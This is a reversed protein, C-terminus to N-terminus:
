LGVDDDDPTVVDALGVDASVRAAQHAVLRGIDVADGAFPHHEGVDIGLLAARRAAGREDGALRAQAGAEGLDAQGARRQAQALLIGRDGLQQLRLAIRGALEALVMQAVAVFEQRRHVAEVLEVAVEIVEIGLFLGLQRIVRLVRREARLEARAAHEVALGGVLVIGRDLRAEAADALLGTDVGARQGLLAHLRDVVVDGRAGDIEDLALVLGALGGQDPHVEGVHVEAGVGLRRAQALRPLELARIVVRHDVMVPIDPLDELHEVIELDGVVREHHVRGVVARVHVRPGIAGHRREAVLLVGVPFAGVAHGAHHAPGAADLGALDGVLHDRMEVPQRGQQGDAALRGDLLLEPAAVLHAVHGVLDM